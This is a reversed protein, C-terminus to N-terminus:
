RELVRVLHFVLQTGDPSTLDLTFGPLNPFESLLKAADSGPEVTHLRAKGHAFDVEKSADAPAGLKGLKLRGSLV